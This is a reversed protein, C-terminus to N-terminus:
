HRKREARLRTRRAERPTAVQDAAGTDHQRKGKSGCTGTAWIRIESQAWREVMEHQSRREAGEQVARLLM